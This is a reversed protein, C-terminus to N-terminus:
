HHLLNGEITCVYMYFLVVRVPRYVLDFPAYVFLQVFHFFISTMGQNGMWLLEEIPDFHITSVGFRDGGDALICGLEELEAEGQGIHFSPSAVTFFFLM